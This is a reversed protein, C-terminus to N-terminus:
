SNNGNENNEENKENNEKQTEPNEFEKILERVREGEIVEKEYL